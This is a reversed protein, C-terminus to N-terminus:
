PIRPWPRWQRQIYQGEISPITKRASKCQKIRPPLNWQGHKRSAIPMIESYCRSSNGRHTVSQCSNNNNLAKMLM